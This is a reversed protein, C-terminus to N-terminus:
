EGYLIRIIKDMLSSNYIIDIKINGFIIFTELVNIGQLVSERCKGRYYIIRNGGRNKGGGIDACCCGLSELM